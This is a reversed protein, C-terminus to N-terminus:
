ALCGPAIQAAASPTTVLPIRVGLARAPGRRGLISRRTVHRRNEFDVWYSQQDPEGLISVGSSGVCYGKLDSHRLGDGNEVISPRIPPCSHADVDLHQKNFGVHGQAVKRSDRDDLLGCVM